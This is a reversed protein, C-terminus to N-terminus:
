DQKEYKIYIKVNILIDKVNVNYYDYIYLSKLGSTFAKSRLNNTKQFFVCRLFGNNCNIEGVNILNNQLTKNPQNLTVRANRLIIDEGNLCVTMTGCLYQAYDFQFPTQNLFTFIQLLFNVDFFNNFRYESFPSSLPESNGRLSTQFFKGYTECLMEDVYIVEDTAPIYKEGDTKTITFPSLTKVITVIERSTFKLSAYKLFYACTLAMGTSTLEASPNEVIDKWDRTYNPHTPKILSLFDGYGFSESIFPFNTTAFLDYKLQKSNSTLMIGRISKVELSLPIDIVFDEGYRVEKEVILFRSNDEM